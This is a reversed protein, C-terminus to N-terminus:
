NSYYALKAKFILNNLQDLLKDINDFAGKLITQALDKKIKDYEVQTKKDVEYKKMEKDLSKIFQDSANKLLQNQKSANIKDDNMAKNVKDRAAQIQKDIYKMTLQTQANRDAAYGSAKANSDASYKTAAFSKDAAYRSASASADAGYKSAEAAIGAKTIGAKTEMQQNAEVVLNHRGLEKNAKRTLKENVFNHRKTEENQAMNNRKSELLNLYSLQNNTM